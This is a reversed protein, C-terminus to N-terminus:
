KIKYNKELLTLTNDIQFEDGRNIIEVFRDIFDSNLINANHLDCDNKLGRFNVEDQIEDDSYDDLSKVEDQDVLGYEDKAWDEVDINLKSLVSEEFVLYQRKFLYGASMDCSGSNKFEEVSKEKYELTEGDSMIVKVIRSM